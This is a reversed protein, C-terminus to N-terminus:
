QRVGESGSVCGAAGSVGCAGGGDGFLSSLIAGGALSECLEVIVRPREMARVNGSDAILGGSISNAERSNFYSVISDDRDGVFPCAAPQSYRRLRLPLM